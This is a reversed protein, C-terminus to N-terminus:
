CHTLQNRGNNKSFYLAEDARRIADDISDGSSCLGLSATITIGIADASETEIQRRLSEGTKMLQDLDDLKGLVCFEEGGFRAVLYPKFTSQLCQAIYIIAEDGKQHGYTDNVKKFFDIDIMLAFFPTLEKQWQTFLKEGQEFFYRRNFLHTLSDRQSIHEIERYSESLEINQKLRVYFEEATSSTDFFDNVGYKMMKLAQEIQEGDECAMMPLQSSNYRQRVYNILHYNDDQNLHSTNELLIIDPKSSKLQQEVREAQEFTTVQYRHLKLMNILRQTYQSLNSSLLWVQREPNKQLNIMIDVAYGIAAPSDKLVFDAIKKYTIDKRTKENFSASFVVTTIHNQQLLQIAEGKPADPLNLDCLAVEIQSDGQLLQKVEALNHCILVPLSSRAELELKLLRAISKQDDIILFTPQTM